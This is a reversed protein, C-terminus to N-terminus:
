LVGEGGVRITVTKHLDPLLPESWQMIFEVKAAAFLPIGRGHHRDRVQQSGRGKQDSAQEEAGRVCLMFPVGVAGFAVRMNHGGVAFGGMAMILAPVGRGLEIGAFQDHAVDAIFMAPMEPTM